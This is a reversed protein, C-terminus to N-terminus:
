PCAFRVVYFGIGSAIGRWYLQGDHLKLHSGSMALLPWEAAPHPTSVDFDSPFDISSGIGALTALVKGDTGVRWIYGDGAAILAEGDQDLSTIAGTGGQLEPYIGNGKYISTLTGSVPDVSVLFDKTITLGALYLKGGLLTM